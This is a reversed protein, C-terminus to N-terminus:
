KDQNQEEFLKKLAAAKEKKAARKAAGGGGGGGGGGCAILEVSGEATSNTELLVKSFVETSLGFTVTTLASLAFLPLLSKRRM